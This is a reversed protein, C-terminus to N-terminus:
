RDKKRSNCSRCAPVVNEPDNTGGRSLPILHDATDATRGCWHCPQGYLSQALKRWAYDYGRAAASPRRRERERSNRRKCELCRSGM